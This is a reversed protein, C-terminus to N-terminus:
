RYSRKFKAHPETMKGGDSRLIPEILNL